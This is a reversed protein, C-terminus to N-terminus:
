FNSLLHLKRKINLSMLQPIGSDKHQNVHDLIM